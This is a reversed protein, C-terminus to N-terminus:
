AWSTERVKGFNRLLWADLVEQRYSRNFQEIHANNNPKSIEIYDGADPVRMSEIALSERNFGDLVYFIRFPLGSYLGDDM